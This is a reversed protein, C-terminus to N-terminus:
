ASGRLRYWGSCRCLDYLPLRLPGFAVRDGFLGKLRGRTTSPVQCNRLDVRLDPHRGLAVGLRDVNIRSVGTEVLMLERLASGDPLVSLVDLAEGDIDCGPFGVDTLRSLRPSGDPQLAAPRRAMRAPTPEDTSECRPEDTPRTM